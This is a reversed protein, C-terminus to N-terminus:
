WHIWWRRELGFLLRLGDWHLPFDLCDPLSDETAELQAEETVILVFLTGIKITTRVSLTSVEELLLRPMHIDYLM